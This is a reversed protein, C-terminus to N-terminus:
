RSFKAALAEVRTLFFMAGVKNNPYLYAIAQIASPFRVPHSKCNMRANRYMFPRGPVTAVADCYLGNLTHFSRMVDPPCRFKKVTVVSGQM